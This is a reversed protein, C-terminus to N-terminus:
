RSVSILSKIFVVGYGPERVKLKRYDPEIALRERGFSESM